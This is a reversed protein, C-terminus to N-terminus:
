NAAVRIAAVMADIGVMDKILYSSAGALIAAEITELPNSSALVVVHIYPYSQRILRTTFLGDTPPLGLSILVVDPYLLACMRFAEVGTKAEGVLLLDEFSEVFLTLASRLTEHSDAVLVRIPKPPLM